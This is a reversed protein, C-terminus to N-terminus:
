QPGFPKNAQKNDENEQKLRAAEDRATETHLFGVGSDDLFTALFQRIAGGTSRTIDILEDQKRLSEKSAEEVAIAVANLENNTERKAEGAAEGTKIAEVGGIGIKNKQTQIEAVRDITTNANSWFEGKAADRNRRSMPLGQNEVILRASEEMIADGGKAKALRNQMGKDKVIRQINEPFSGEGRSTAFRAAYVAADRAEKKIGILDAIGRSADEMSINSGHQAVLKAQTLGEKGLRSALTLTTPAQQEAGALTARSDKEHAASVADSMKRATETTEKMRENQASIKENIFGIALGAAAAALAVRQLGGEFRFSNAGAHAIEALPGGLGKLAHGMEVIEHSGRKAAREAEDFHRKLAEGVEKTSTKAVTLEKTLASVQGTLQKMGNRVEAEFDVM